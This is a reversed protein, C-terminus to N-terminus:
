VSGDENLVLLGDNAVSVYFQNQSATISNAFVPDGEHTIEKTQENSDLVFLGKVTAICISKSVPNFEIAYNRIKFFPIWETQLQDNIFSVKMLGLNTSLYATNKDTYIGDKLSAETVRIIKGSIKNFARIEGDDFIIYDSNADNVLCDISRKGSEHITTFNNGSYKVLQGTSTGFIAGYLSDIEIATASEFNFDQIVDPVKLDPIVLVGHDFTSLLINGEQDEYVDSILFQKYFLTNPENSFDSEILGVGPLTGAVWLHNGTSYIRVSESRKFYPHSPIVQMSFDDPNFLYLNKSKLDLAYIKDALKIFQHVSNSLELKQQCVLQKKEFHNEKFVIISNSNVPFLISKENLYFPTGYYFKETNFRNIEKGDADLVIISGATIFLENNEGTILHLDSHTDALDLEYFLKCTNNKIEFIQNNLNNCYITGNKSIVFNFFSISKSEDCAIKEYDYHDYKYLGESTSFWYNFQHDQIVDYIQVGSFTQEGLVFYGPQQLAFTDNQFLCCILLVLNGALLKM